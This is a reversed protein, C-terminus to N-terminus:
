LCLFVLFLSLWCFLFITGRIFFFFFLGLLSSRWCDRRERFERGNWRRWMIIFFVVWFLIGSIKDFDVVGKLEVGFFEKSGWSLLEVLVFLFVIVFIFVVEGVFIDGMVSGWDGGFGVIGLSFGWGGIFVFVFLLVVLNIVLVGGCVLGVDFNM